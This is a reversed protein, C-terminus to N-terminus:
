NIEKRLAAIEQRLREGEQESTEVKAKLRERDDLLAPIIRGVLYQSEEIWRDVRQRDELGEM